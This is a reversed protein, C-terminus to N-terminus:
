MYRGGNIHICHGTIFSSLDSVLFLVANAVDEPLGIRHLPIKSIAVEKIEPPITETMPTAIFGPSVANVRINNRGGELALTRTMGIVGAKSASYNAQGINGLFGAISSFNVIAGGAKGMLEMASKACLFTGMLNVDLVQKFQATTMKKSMSDRTIGANNILIDLRGFKQQIAAFASVVSDEDAVNGSLPLCTAGLERVTKCVAHEDDMKLDLVAVNAGCKALEVAVSYGIGQGAGTVLAVKGTLNIEKM